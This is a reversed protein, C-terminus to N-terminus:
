AAGKPARPDRIPDRLYLYLDRGYFVGIVIVWGFYLGTVVITLPRSDIHPGIRSLVVIVAPALVVAAIDAPIRMWDRPLIVSRGNGEMELAVAYWLLAVLGLFVVTDIFFEVAYYEGQFFFHNWLLRIWLRLLAAPANLADCFTKDL